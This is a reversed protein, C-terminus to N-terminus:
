YKDIINYVKMYFGHDPYSTYLKPNLGTIKKLDVLFEKTKKYQEMDGNQPHMGKRGIKNFYGLPVGSDNRKEYVSPVLGSLKIAVDYSIQDRNCGILSWEYWLENFKNMEPSMTRWVITGLPSGYTRFNYDIDKLKQTLLLADDYTFFACTFGELMEDFYSFKSAHRLMTFPFCGKSREVFEKTHVYCGDIWITHTGEPFFLHPNAKPYFSLRRPCDIDLDLKIYEWPEVTTDVSGDHFCVYRIDPDYYNNEPFEDYGNTICTYIVIDKKDVSDNMDFPLYKINAYTHRVILSNEWGDFVKCLDHVFEIREKVSPLPHLDYVSEYSFNRRSKNGLNVICDVRDAKITLYEAISSSVQDRNVGSIYWERWVDCWKIVDPTLRRWIMCNITQEYNSLKYRTDKIKEAMKICEDYSSFGHSYLKSFEHILSRGEPHKQLVFDKTKFIDFAYAVMREDLPYCGDVWVTESNNEFYLHPCHKPHYSRRVPCEEDLELKIYEWGDADPQDGDYFCVFRVDIEEPIEPPSALRDYNNTVSTYFIM